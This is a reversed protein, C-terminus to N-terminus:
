AARRARKLDVRPIRRLRHAVMDVAVRAGELTMYGILPVYNGEDDLPM